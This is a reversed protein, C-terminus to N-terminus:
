FVLLEMAIAFANYTGHIVIAAVILPMGHAIHPPHGENRANVWVRALGLGAVLSCGTHLAVCVTWRWYIIAPSPDDIYVHLYIFNEIAAFVAGSVAACLLIQGRSFFLYPRRRVVHAALAVKMFEEVTPGFLVVAFVGGLGGSGFLTGVIGAPGAALVLLTTAVASRLPSTTAMRTDLWRRYTLARDDPGGALEPSLGPEEWVTHEIREDDSVSAARETAARADTPDSRFGGGRLHPEDWVSPDTPPRAM